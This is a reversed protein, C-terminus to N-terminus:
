SIVDACVRKGFLIFRLNQHVHTEPPCKEVWQPQSLHFFEIPIFPYTPFWPLLVLVNKPNQKRQNQGRKRESRRLWSLGLAGPCQTVIVSLLPPFSAKGKSTERGPENQKEAADGWKLLLLFVVNMGHIGSPSPLSTIFFFTLASNNKKGHKMNLCNEESNKQTTTSGFSHCALWKVSLSLPGGFFPRKPSASTVM